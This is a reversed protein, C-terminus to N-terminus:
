WASFETELEHSLFDGRSMNEFGDLIVKTSNDIMLTVDEPAVLTQADTYILPHTCAAHDVIEGGGALFLVHAVHEMNSEVPSHGRSSHLDTRHCAAWM